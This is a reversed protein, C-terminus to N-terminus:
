NEDQPFRAGGQRRAEDMIEMVRLTEAWPMIPSETRGAAIDLAM